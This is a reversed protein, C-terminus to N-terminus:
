YIGVLLFLNLQLEVSDSFIHLKRSLPQITVNQNMNYDSAKHSFLTKNVCLIQGHCMKKFKLSQLYNYSDLAVGNICIKM